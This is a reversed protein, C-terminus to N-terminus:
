IWPTLLMLGPLPLTVLADRFHFVRQHKCYLTAGILRSAIEATFSTDGHNVTDGNFPTLALSEKKLYVAFSVM